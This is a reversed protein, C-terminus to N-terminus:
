LLTSPVRGMRGSCGRKVDLIFDHHLVMEPLLLSGRPFTPRLQQLKDVFTLRGWLMIGLVAFALRFRLTPHVLYLMAMRRTLSLPLATLVERLFDFTRGSGDSPMGTTLLVVTFDRRPADKERILKILRALYFLLLRRSSSTSCREHIRIGVLVITPRGLRDPGSIYGVGEKKLTDLDGAMSEAGQILADYLRGAKREDEDPFAQQRFELEGENQGHSTDAPASNIASAISASTVFGGQCIRRAGRATSARLVDPPPRFRTFEAHARSEAARVGKEYNSCPLNTGCGDNVGVTGKVLEDDSKTAGERPSEVLNTAHFAKPLWVSPSPYGAKLM